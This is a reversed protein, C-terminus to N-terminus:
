PTVKIISMPAFPAMGSRVHGLIARQGLDRAFHDNSEDEVQTKLDNRLVYFLPKLYPHDILAFWTNSSTSLRPHIFLAFKNAIINDQATNIAPTVYATKAERANQFVELLHSPAFVTIKDLAVEEPSFFPQGETDLMQLWRQQCQFLDHFVAAVTGVGSSAVINGGTVGFRAVGDGDTASCLVVGDFANSIAPQLTSANNLYDSFMVDPIQLFRNTMSEIHSRMDGLIDDEEDWVNWPIALQFPYHYVTMLRDKFTKRTRPENYGWYEPFPLSEKMAYEALRTKVTGRKIFKDQRAAYVPYRNKYMEAFDSLIGLRRSQINSVVPM